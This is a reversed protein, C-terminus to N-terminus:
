KDLGLATEAWKFKDCACDRKHITVYCTFCVYEICHAGGDSEFMRGVPKDELCKNCESKDDVYWSGWRWQGLECHLCPQQDEEPGDAYDPDFGTGECETCEQDHHQLRGQAERPHSMWKAIQEPTPKTTDVDGM